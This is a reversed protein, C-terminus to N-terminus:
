PKKHLLICVRSLPTVLFLKKKIMNENKKIRINYLFRILPAAVLSHSSVASALLLRVPVAAFVCNYLYVCICKICVGFICICM